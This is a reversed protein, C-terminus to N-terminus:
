TKEIINVRIGLVFCLAFVDGSRIDNRENLYNRLSASDVNSKKALETVTYGSKRWAQVVIKRYYTTYALNKNKNM